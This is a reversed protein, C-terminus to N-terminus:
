QCSSVSLHLRRCELLVLVLVLVLVMMRCEMM